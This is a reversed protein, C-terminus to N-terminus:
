ETGGETGGERLGERLELEETGGDLYACTCRGHYFFAVNRLNDVIYRVTDFDVPTTEAICAHMLM